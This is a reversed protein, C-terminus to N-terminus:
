KEEEMNEGLMPFYYLYDIGREGIKGSKALAGASVCRRLLMSLNMETLYLEQMNFGCMEYFYEQENAEQMIQAASKAEGEMNLYTFVFRARETEYNDNGRKELWKKMAFEYGDVPFLTKTCINKLYYKDEKYEVIQEKVLNDMLLKFENEDIMSLEDCFGALEELTKGDEDELIAAVLQANATVATKLKLIAACRRDDLSDKWAEIADDAMEKDRKREDMIERCLEAQALLKIGEANGQATAPLSMIMTSCSLALAQLEADSKKMYEHRHSTKVTEKLVDASSM